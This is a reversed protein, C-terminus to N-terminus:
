LVRALPLHPNRAKRHMRLTALLRDKHQRLVEPHRSSNIHKKRPPLGESRISTKALGTAAQQFGAHRPKEQKQGKHSQYPCISYFHEAQPAATPASCLFKGPMPLVAASLVPCCSRFGSGQAPQKIPSSGRPCCLQQM